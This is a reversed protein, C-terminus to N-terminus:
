QSTNKAETVTQNSKHIGNYQIVMNKHNYENRRLSVLFSQQAINKEGHKLPYLASKKKKKNDM